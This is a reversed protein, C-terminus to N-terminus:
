RIPQRQSRPPGLRDDTFHPLGQCAEKSRCPCDQRETMLSLVSKKDEEEPETGQLRSVFLLFIVESLSWFLGACRDGGRLWWKVKDDCGGVKRALKNCFLQQRQAGGRMRNKKNIIRGGGGWVEEERTM